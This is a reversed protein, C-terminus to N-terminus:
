GGNELDLNLVITGTVLLNFDSLDLVQMADDGRM